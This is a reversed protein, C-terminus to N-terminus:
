VLNNKVLYARGGDALYYTSVGDLMIPSYLYEAKELKRLLHKAKTPNMKLRRAMSHDDIGPDGAESLYKLIKIEDEDLADVISPDVPTSAPVIIKSASKRLDVDMKEFAIRPMKSINFHRAIAELLQKSFEGEELTLAQFSSLPPPLMSKTLSSHCIPIVPVRRIWACGTEFHIWPRTLANPSCIVLLAGADNLVSDIEELWKDGPRLDRKDSSVFVKVDFTSEIWDKLLIALDAESSTHSIFVTHHPAAKMATSPRAIAKESDQATSLNHKLETIAQRVLLLIRGEMQSYMSSSFGPRSLIDAAELAAAHLTPNFNLLPVAEGLWKLRSSMPRLINSDAEHQSLLERLASERQSSTM